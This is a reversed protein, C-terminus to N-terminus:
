DQEGACGTVVKFFSEATRAKATIVCWTASAEGGAAFLAGVAELAADLM